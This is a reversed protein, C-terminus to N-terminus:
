IGVTLRGDTWPFLPTEETKKPDDDGPASAAVAAKAASAAAASAIATMSQASLAASMQSLTTAM